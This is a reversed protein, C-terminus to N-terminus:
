EVFAGGGAAAVSLANLSGRHCPLPDPRGPSRRRAAGHARRHARHRDEGPDSGGGDDDSQYRRVGVAVGGDRGHEQRKHERPDVAPSAPRLAAAPLYTSPLWRRPTTWLRRWVRCTPRRVIGNLSTRRFGALWRLGPLCTMGTASFSGRQWPRTARRSSSAPIPCTPKSPRRAPASRSCDRLVLEESLSSM